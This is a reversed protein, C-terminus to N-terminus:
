AVQKAAISAELIALLDGGEVKPAIEVIPANPDADIGTIAELRARVINNYTSPDFEETVGDVLMRGMNAEAETPQELGDMDDSPAIDDPRILSQLCLQGRFITLRGLKSPGDKVQFEGILAKTTDAVLSLFMAYLKREAVNSKKAPKLRYSLDGPLTAADVQEAPFVSIAFVKKETESTKAAAIDAASVEDLTDDDLVRARRTIEGTVYPGHGNACSYGQDLKTPTECGMCIMKFGGSAKAEAIKTSYADVKFSLLGLTLSLDSVVSRQAGM